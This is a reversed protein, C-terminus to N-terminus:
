ASGFVKGSRWTVASADDASKVSRSASAKCAAEHDRLVKLAKELGDRACLQAIEELSHLRYTDVIRHFGDTMMLLMSTSDIRVTHQRANFVGNPQLCLVTPSPCSNQYERRSRLMPMLRERRVAPDGIGESSLKAIENQLVQEQPNIYPDLDVVSQEPTLVFTKCDGLCFLEITVDSAAPRIRAWSLAAIPFAHLPVTVGSTREQFVGRLDNVALQLSEEQSRGKGITKGLSAAFTRVFWVVDGLEPDIYDQDAVSTGGDIVVIDVQEQTEYVAILDENGGGNAASSIQEIKM